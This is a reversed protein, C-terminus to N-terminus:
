RRHGSGVMNWLFNLLYLTPVNISAMEIPVGKSRILWLIRKEKPTNKYLVLNEIFTWM